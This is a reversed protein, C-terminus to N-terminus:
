QVNNTNHYFWMLSLYFCDDFWQRNFNQIQYIALSQKRLKKQFSILPQTAIWALVMPLIAVSRMYHHNEIFQISLKINIPILKYIEDIISTLEEPQHWHIGQNQMATAMSRFKNNLTSEFLPKNVRSDSNNIVAFYSEFAAIQELDKQISNLKTTLIADLQEGSFHKALQKQSFLRYNTWTNLLHHINTLEWHYGVESMVKDYVDLGLLDKGFIAFTLMFDPVSRAREWQILSIFPLQITAKSLNKLYDWGSNDIDIAMQKLEAKIKARRQYYNPQSELLFNPTYAISRINSTSKLSSDNDTLDTDVATSKSNCDAFILWVGRYTNDDYQSSLSDLPQLHWKHDQPTLNVAPADPTAFNIAVLHISDRMAELNSNDFNQTGSSSRHLKLELVQSKIDFEYDYYGFRLKFGANSVNSSYEVIVSDDLGDKSFSLLKRIIPQWNHPELITFENRKLRMPLTIKIESNSSLYFNLDVQRDWEANYIKIRYGYLSTNINLLSNNRIINNESDYILTQSTPFYCRFLIAKNPEKPQNPLLLGLTMKNVPVNSQTFLIFERLENAVKEIQVSQENTMVNNPEIGEFIIRGSSLFNNSSQPILKYRFDNPLIGIIQQFVINNNPSKVLIQYIGALNNRNISSLKNYITSHFSKIFISDEGVKTEVLSEINIKYIQFGSKFTMTPYVFDTLQKGRIEYIFNADRCNTKFHYFTKSENASKGTLTITGTLKYLNGLLIEGIFELKSDLNSKEDFTYDNPIYILASEQQTNQSNSGSYEAVTTGLSDDEVIINALFPIHKDISYMSANQYPNLSLGSDDNFNPQDGTPTELKMYLGSCWHDVPMNLSISQRFKLLELNYIPYGDWTGLQLENESSDNSQLYFALALNDVNLKSLNDESLKLENFRNIKAELSITKSKIDITIIRQLHITKQWPLIITQRSPRRINEKVQRSSELILNTLLEQASRAELPFPFSEKWNPVHIDLYGVPDEKDHLSHVKVLQYIDETLEVLVFIIDDRSSSQPILYSYNRLYNERNEQKSIAELAGQLLKGLWGGSSNFYAIPLGGERMLSGLANRHKSETNRHIQRGWKKLGNEVISVLLQNTFDETDLGISQLLDQWRWDGTYERRFWEAGYLVFLKDIPFSYHKSERYHLLLQHCSKLHKKLSDYDDQSIGYQYLRVEQSSNLVNLLHQTLQDM